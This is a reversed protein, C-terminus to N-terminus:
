RLAKAIDSEVKKWDNRLNLYDVLLGIPKEPSQKFSGFINFVSFFGKLISQFVSRKSEYNKM